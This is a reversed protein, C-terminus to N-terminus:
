KVDDVAGMTGSILPPFRVIEGSELDIVIFAEELLKGVLRTQPYEQQVQPLVSRTIKRLEPVRPARSCVELAEYLFGAHAYLRAAEVLSQTENTHAHRKALARALEEPPLDQWLQDYEDQEILLGRAIRQLLADEVSKM